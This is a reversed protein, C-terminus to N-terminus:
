NESLRQIPVKLVFETGDTVWRHSVAAELQKALGAVIRMGLGKSKSLEFGPPLGGGDDRMSILATNEDHRDLRVWIHGYSRDSLAHKVANTVLENVLLALSIARDPDLQIGPAAHFDLQCHSIGSIVDACV